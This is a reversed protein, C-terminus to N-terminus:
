GRIPCAASKGASPSSRCSGSRRSRASPNWELHRRGGTVPVHVRDVAVEQSVRENLEKPLGLREYMANQGCFLWSIRRQIEDFDAYRWGVLGPRPREYEGRRLLRLVHPITDGVKEAFHLWRPWAETLAAFYARIEPIEATERPDDNWGDFYFSVAGEWKLAAERTSSLVNLKELMPQIDYTM